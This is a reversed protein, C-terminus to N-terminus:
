MYIPVRTPAPAGGPMTSTVADVIAGGTAAAFAAAFAECPLQRGELYAHAARLADADKLIATHDDLPSAGGSIVRFTTAGPADTMWPPVVLDFAGSISLVEIGNPPPRSSIRRIVESDPSLDRVSEADHPPGLGLDDLHDLLVDGGPIKSLRKGLSALPAGELPSALTIVKGIEPYEDAHGRYVEHLFLLIVVGGQSHGILDVARDPHERGLEKLQEGLLRAKGM